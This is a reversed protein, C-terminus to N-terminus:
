KTEKLAKIEKKLEEIQTQQDQIAAVLIPIMELPKTKLYGTKEDKEVLHPYIEQLEQAIFGYQPTYIPEEDIDVADDKRETRKDVTDKDKTASGDKLGLRKEEAEKRNLLEEAAERRENRKGAESKRDNLMVENSIEYSVPQLKAFSKRDFSLSNINRKLTKDSYNYFAINCVLYDGSLYYSYLDDGFYGYSSYFSYSDLQDFCGYPSLVNYSDIGDFYGLSGWFSNTELIEFNSYWSYIGHFPIKKGLTHQLSYDNGITPSIDVINIPPQSPAPPPTYFTGALGGTNGFKMLLSGDITTKYSANPTFTGIGIRENADIEIQAFGSFSICVSCVLILITKKM